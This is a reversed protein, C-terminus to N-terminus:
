SPYWGRETLAVVVLPPRCCSPGCSYLEVTIWRLWPRPDIGAAVTALVQDVFGDVLAELLTEEEPTLVRVPNTRLIAAPGGAWLWEMDNGSLEPLADDTHLHFLFDWIQRPPLRWLAEKSRLAWDQGDSDAGTMAQKMVAAAGAVGFAEICDRLDFCCMTAWRRALVPDLAATARVLAGPDGFSSVQDLLREARESRGDRVEQVLRAIVRDPEDAVLRFLEHILDGDAEWFDDDTLELAASLVVEAEPGESGPSPSATM